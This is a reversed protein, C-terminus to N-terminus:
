ELWFAEILNGADDLLWWEGGLTTDHFWLEGGEVVYKRASERIPEPIRPDDISFSCGHWSPDGCRVHKAFFLGVVDGKSFRSATDDLLRMTDRLSGELDACALLLRNRRMMMSPVGNEREASRSGDIEEDPYDTEEFLELLAETAAKQDASEDPLDLGLALAAGRAAEQRLSVFRFRLRAAKEGEEGMVGFRNGIPTLTMALVAFFWAQLQGPQWPSDTWPAAQGPWRWPLFCSSEPWLPSGCNWERVPFEGNLRNGFVYGLRRLWRARDDFWVHREFERGRNEDDVHRLTLRLSDKRIDDWEACLEALVGEQDIDLTIPLLRHAVAAAWVWINDLQFLYSLEVAAAEGRWDFRWRMWGASPPSLSLRPRGQAPPNETRPTASFRLDFPFHAPFM